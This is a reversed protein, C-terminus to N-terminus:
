KIRLGELERGLNDADLALVLRQKWAFQGYLLHTHVNESGTIGRQIEEEAARYVGFAEDVPFVGRWSRARVVLTRPFTKSAKGTATNVDRCILKDLHISVFLEGRVSVLGGFAPNKCHPLSHVYRPEVIAELMLTPLALWRDGIRFIVVSRWVTQRIKRPEALVAQWEDLYGAPARRQLLKRGAAGYVACNMCHIVDTLKPCTSGAESWTGIQNWCDDIHINKEDGPM